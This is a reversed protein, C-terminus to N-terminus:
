RTKFQQSNKFMFVAIQYLLGLIGLHLSAFELVGGEVVGILFCCKSM